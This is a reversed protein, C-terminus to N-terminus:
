ILPYSLIDEPYQWGSEWYLTGNMSTTIVPFFMSLAGSTPPYPESVHGFVVYFSLPQQCQNHIGQSQSVRAKILRYKKM